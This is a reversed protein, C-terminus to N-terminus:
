PWCSAQYCPRATSTSLYSHNLNSAPFYVSFSKNTCIYIYIFIINTFCPYVHRWELIPKKSHTRGYINTISKYVKLIDAQNSTHESYKNCSPAMYGHLEPNPAKPFMWTPSISMANESGIAIEQWKNPQAKAIKEYYQNICYMLLQTISNNTKYIRSQSKHNNAYNCNGSGLTESPIALHSHPKTLSYIRYIRCRKNWTNKTTTGEMVALDRSPNPLAWLCLISCSCRSVGPPPPATAIRENLSINATSNRHQVRIRVPNHRGVTNFKHKCSPTPSSFNYVTKIVNFKFLKALPCTTKIGDIARDQMVFMRDDTWTHTLQSSVSVRWISLKFCRTVDHQGHRARQMNSRELRWIRIMWVTKHKFLNTGYVSLLM